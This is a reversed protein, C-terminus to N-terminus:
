RFLLSIIVLIFFEEYPNENKDKQKGEEDKLDKSKRREKREEVPIQILQKSKFLNRMHKDPDMMSGDGLLPKQLTQDNTSIELESVRPGWGKMECNLRNIKDFGEEFVLDDIIEIKKLAIIENFLSGTREHGKRQENNNNTNPAAMTPKIQLKSVLDEQTMEKIEQQQIYNETKSFRHRNPQNQAIYRDISTKKSVPKNTQDNKTEPNNNDNEPETEESEEIEQFTTPSPGKELYSLKLLLENNKENIKENEVIISDFDQSLTRHATKM